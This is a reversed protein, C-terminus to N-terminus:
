GVVVIGLTYDACGVVALLLSCEVVDGLGSPTPQVTAMLQRGTGHSLTPIVSGYRNDDTTEDIIVIMKKM